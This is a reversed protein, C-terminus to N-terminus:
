GWQEPNPEGDLFVVRVLNRLVESRFYVEWPQSPDGDPPISLGEVQCTSAWDRPIAQGTAQGHLPELAPRCLDFLHNPDELMVRCFEEESPLPGEPTGDLYVAIWRGTATTVKSVWYGRAQPVSPPMTQWRMAGFYHHDLNATRHVAYSSLRSARDLRNPNKSM